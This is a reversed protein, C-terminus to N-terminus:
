LLLFFFQTESLRELKRNLEKKKKKNLYPCPHCHDTGLTPHDNVIMSALCVYLIRPEESCYFTSQATGTLVGLAHVTPFVLNSDRQSTNMPLVNGWSM